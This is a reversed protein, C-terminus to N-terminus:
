KSKRRYKKLTQLHAKWYIFSIVFLTMGFLLLILLTLVSPDGLGIIPHRLRYFYGYVSTILVVVSFVLSFFIATADLIRTTRYFKTNKFQSYSTRAYVTARRRANSQRYKKWEEMVRRFEEEGSIIKSYNSILFEYAETAEVFKDIADPSPNIDPHYKRAKVRYAKKIEEVSSGYELDLIRYYDSITM